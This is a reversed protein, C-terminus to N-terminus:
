WLKLLPIKITVLTGSTKKLQCIEFNDQSFSENLLTVREKTITLAKSKHAVKQRKKSECIGIGNDQVVCILKDNKTKFSIDLVGKNNPNPALGHIIANEVIPQLLLPPIGYDEEKLSDCITIRYSFVSDYRLSILKIYLELMEVEQELPILATNSELILRLLRSFKSIYKNAENINGQSYYGKITNLANFIFHPNMQMRLSKQEIQAIQKELLIKEQQEKLLSHEITFRNQMSRIRKSIFYYILLISVISVMVLFVISEWFPKSIKLVVVKEDSWINENGKVRLCIKHKGSSLNKIELYRTEIFNWSKDNIRYQYKLEGYDSFSIGTFRISLNNQFPKLNTLDQEKNGNILITNIDLIPKNAVRSVIDKKFSILGKNTALYITSDIVEIDNVRDTKLAYHYNLNTISKTSDDFEIYDLGKNSGILYGNSYPEISFCANSLLGDKKSFQYKVTNNELITIGQSNTAVVVIDKDSVYHIDLISSNLEIFNKGIQSISDKYFSYLGYSTGLLIKNNKYKSIVNTRKKLITYKSLNKSSISNTNRIEPFTVLEAEKFKLVSSSSVFYEKDDYYFDNAGFSFEKTLSANVILTKSDGVAYIKDKFSRVKNIKNYSITSFVNSSNKHNTNLRILGSDSGLWLNQDEGKELSNIKIEEKSFNNLKIDFSPIFIIGSYLTSVWFNNQSDKIIYAISNDKFYSELDKNAEKVYLGSRTGIYLTDNISSLHIIDEGDLSLYEKVGTKDFSFLTGKSSFIFEGLHEVTRYGQSSNRADKISHILAKSESLISELTLYYISTSDIWYGYVSSKLFQTKFTDLEINFSLIRGNRYLVKISNKYEFIDTIMGFLLAENLIEKNESNYFNDNKFFSLKGNLTIFWIRNLSDEYLRFVENDSLGDDTTYHKFSYGDFKLVGVDTGFWIYGKSDEFVCYVNSTPLGDGIDYKVHYPNQSFLFSEFVLVFLLVLRIM